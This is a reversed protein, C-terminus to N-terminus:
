LTAATITHGVADHLERALRAREELVATRRQLQLARQRATASLLKEAGRAHVWVLGNVIHPLALLAVLGVLVLPWTEVPRDLFMGPWLEIRETFVITLPATLGAGAFVVLVVVTVFSVIALPFRLVLWLLSTWTFPEQALAKVRGWVGDGDPLAPPTPEIVADFLAIELSREFRAVARWGVAVALLIPVGVWVIVLAIGASLGGVIGAFYATALPLGLLLYFTRLYTTKQGWPAFLARM